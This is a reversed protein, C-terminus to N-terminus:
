LPHFFTQGTAFVFNIKVEIRTIQSFHPDAQHHLIVACINMNLGFCM